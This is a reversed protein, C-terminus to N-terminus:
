AEMEVHFTLKEESKISDLEGLFAELRVDDMPVSLQITVTGKELMMREPDAGYRLLVNSVQSVVALKEGTIFEGFAIHRAYCLNRRQQRPYGHMKALQEIDQKFMAAEIFPHGFGMADAIALGTSNETVDGCHYGDIVHFVGLSKAYDRVASFLMTKCEACRDKGNVLVSGTLTNVPLIHVEFVGQFDRVFAKDAESIFPSEAFVGIVNEKGLIDTALRLLLTSDAGGSFAVVVRELSRIRDNMQTAKDIM